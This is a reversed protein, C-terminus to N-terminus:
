FRFKVGMIIPWLDFDRLDHEFTHLYSFETFVVLEPTVYADFGVGGRAAWDVAGGGPRFGHRKQVDWDIAGTGVFAYPQFDDATPYYGKLNLTLAQADYNAFRGADRLRFNGGHFHEYVMEVAANKHFRYGARTDFGWSDRVRIRPQEVVDASRKEYKNVEFDANSYLGGGALYFGERYCEEAKKEGMDTLCGTTSLALLILTFFSFLRVGNAAKLLRINMSIKELGTCDFVWM